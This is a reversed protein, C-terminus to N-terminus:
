IFKTISGYFAQVIEYFFYLIQFITEIESRNTKLLAMDRSMGSSTMKLEAAGCQPLLCALSLRRGIEAPLTADESRCM